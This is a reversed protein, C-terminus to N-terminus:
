DHPHTEWKHAFHISGKQNRKRQENSIERGKEFQFLPCFGVTQRRTRARTKSIFLGMELQRQM